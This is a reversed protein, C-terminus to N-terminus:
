PHSKVTCALNKTNEQFMIAYKMLFTKHHFRTVGRGEPHKQCRGKCATVSTDEGTEKRESHKRVFTV